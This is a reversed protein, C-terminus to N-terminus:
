AGPLAKFHAARRVQGPARGRVRKFAKAFAFENEYGVQQAVDAVRTGEELLEAAVTMRWRAVYTLPPEGVAQHFRRSFAARSLGCLQALAAVTWPFAPGGHIAHIAPGVLPNQLAGFWSRHRADAHHALWDRLAYVFVLDVLRGVVLGGGSGPHLAEEALLDVTARLARGQGGEAPVHLLHPFGRLLPHSGDASLSYSGCLLVTSPGSGGTPLARSEGPRISAVLPEFEIPPTAPHDCLTHGTGHPFLVIDGPGLEVQESSGDARAWCRGEVVIHFGARQGVGGAHTAWPAGLETRASLSSGLHVAGLVQTLVDPLSDIREFM